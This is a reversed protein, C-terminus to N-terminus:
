ERTTPQMEVAHSQTMMSNVLPVAVLQLRNTQTTVVAFNRACSRIGYIRPIIVDSYLIVWM